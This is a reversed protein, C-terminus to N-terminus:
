LRTARSLPEHSKAFPTILVKIPDKTIMVTTAKSKVGIELDWSGKLLPVM